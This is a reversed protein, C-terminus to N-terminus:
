PPLRLAAGRPAALRRRVRSPRRQRPPRPPPLFAPPLQSRPTRPRGGRGVEAPFFDWYSLAEGFVGYTVNNATMGFTDVRLLAQGPELEPPKSDVIRCQRLDDRKVQFDTM